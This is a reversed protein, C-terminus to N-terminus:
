QEKTQKTVTMKKFDLIDQFHYEAYHRICHNVYDKLSVGLAQCATDIHSANETTVEATITCLLGEASQNEPM